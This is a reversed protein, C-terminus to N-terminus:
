ANFDITACEGINTFELDYTATDTTITINTINEINTTVIVQYGEKDYNITRMDENKEISYLYESLNEFLLELDLYSTDIGNYLYDIVEITDLNVKYTGTSDIFYKIVGTADEKFGIEKSENKWGTYIYKSNESTITYTYEFNGLLLDNLMDNYNTFDYNETEVEDTPTQNNEVPLNISDRESVLVIIILIIIFIMWLVLKITAKGKETQWFSNDKM